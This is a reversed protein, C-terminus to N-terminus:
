TSLAKKKKTRSCSISVILINSFDLIYGFIVEGKNGINLAAHPRKQSRSGAALNMDVDTYSASVKTEESESGGNKEDVMADVIEENTSLPAVIVENPEGPDAM